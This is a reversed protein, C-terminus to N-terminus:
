IDAIRRGNGASRDDIKRKKGQRLSFVVGDAYVTVPNNAQPIITIDEEVELHHSKRKDEDPLGSSTVTITGGGNENLATVAAALSVKDGETGNTSKYSCLAIETPLPEPAPTETEKEAPAAAPKEAAAASSDGQEVLVPADAPKEAAWAATPMLPLVMCLTLLISVLQKKM